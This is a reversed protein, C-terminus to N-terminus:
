LDDPHPKSDIVGFGKRQSHGSKTGNSSSGLPVIETTIHIGHGKQEVNVGEKSEPHKVGIFQSLMFKLINM